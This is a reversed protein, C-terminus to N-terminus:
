MYFVAEEDNEEKVTDDFELLLAELIELKLRYNDIMAAIIQENNVSGGMEEKLQNFELDLLELEELLEPEIELTGLREMKQNVRTVYYGEVEALEPSIDSLSYGNRDTAMEDIPQDAMENAVQHENMIFFLGLAVVVVAAVGYALAKRLPVLKRVPVVDIDQEIRDWVTPSPTLEDFEERHDSIYKELQDKDEM